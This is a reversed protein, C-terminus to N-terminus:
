NDGLNSLNRILSSLQTIDQHRERYELLLPRLLKGRLTQLGGKSFIDNLTGLSAEPYYILHSSWMAKYQLDSVLQQKHMYKVIDVAELLSARHAAIGNTWDTKLVVAAAAVDNQM